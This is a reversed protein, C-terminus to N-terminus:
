KLEIDEAPNWKLAHYLNLRGGSLTKEKLEPLKDTTFLLHTILQQYSLNPFQEMMLALAGTVHPAAMSTGSDVRYSHDDTCWTSYIQEGPAALLVTKAGYNSSSSLQSFLSTSAVTVINDLNYAAPYSPFNDFTNNEDDNDAHNNGAATVIIIHRKRAEEFAAKETSSPIITGFSCNLIRAGHNCAYDIAAVEDSIAGTGSNNLFKCAMLQVKWAVGTIGVGNNGVAGIIGACHTGHGEEDMPDSNQALANTGYLDGSVPNPNHWMNDALDEHTYRIGSDIVAVIISPAQNRIMWGREADIGSAFPVGDHAGTEFLSWSKWLNYQLKYLPDNPLHSNEKVDATSCIYDPESNIVALHKLSILQLMKPVADLSIDKLNLRYLPAKVPVKQLSIGPLDLQELFHMPEEGPALTVLIHNAVMALEKGIPLKTTADIKEETRIYPYKFDTKLIKKRVKQNTRAEAGESYALVRAMPFYTSAKEQYSHAKLNPFQVLRLINVLMIVIRVSFLSIRSPSTM